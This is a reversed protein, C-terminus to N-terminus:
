IDEKILAHTLIRSELLKKDSESWNSLKEIEQVLFIREEENKVIMYRIDEAKFSCLYAKTKQSLTDADFEEKKNVRIIMENALLESPVYRWEREDYYLYNKRTTWKGDAFRRFNVGRYCKLFAFFKTNDAVGRAAKRIGNIIKVFHSNPIVYMVPSIGKEIGWDKTMGIGYEGYFGMHSQIASLPIDCFCCQPVAFDYTLKERWGFEICYRPWFGASSLIKVLTESNRTFQFLTNSSVVM